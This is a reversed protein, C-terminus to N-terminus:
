IKVDKEWGDGKRDKGLSEGLNMGDGMGEFDGERRQPVKCHNTTFKM